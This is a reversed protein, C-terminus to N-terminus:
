LFNCAVFLTRNQSLTKEFTESITALSMKSTCKCNRFWLRVELVFLFSEVVFNYLLRGWECDHFLKLLLNLHGWLIWVIVSVNKPCSHWWLLILTAPMLEGCWGNLIAGLKVHPHSDAPLWVTHDGQSSHLRLFLEFSSKYPGKVCQSEAWSLVNGCM